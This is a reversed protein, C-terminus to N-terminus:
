TQWARRSSDRNKTNSNTKGANALANRVAYIIGRSSYTAGSVTDVRKGPKGLLRGIVAKARNFYPADDSHSLIEVNTINGGSVTVRVRIPGNFGQGSGTYVGDKLNANAIAFSGAVNGRRGKTNRTDKKVTSMIAQQKSGAKRLADAVAEKIANSSITAGSVSDVNVNGSNLIKGIVASARSFYEPTETHSVVKIDTLKGGKITIRVTLPGGYGTATGEYEGDKLSDTSVESGIAQFEKVVKETAANNKQIVTVASYAMVVTVTVAVCFSLVGKISTTTM